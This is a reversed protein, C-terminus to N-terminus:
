LVGKKNFLQNISLQTAINKANLYSIDSIGTEFADLFVDEKNKHLKINLTMVCLYKSQQRTFDCKSNNIAIYCDSNKNKSNSFGLQMLKAVVLNAVSHNDQSEFCTSNIFAETDNLRRYMPDNSLLDSASMMVYKTSLLGSIKIRDPNLSYDISNQLSIPASQNLFILQRAITKIESNISDVVDNLLISSQVYYTSNQFSQRKTQINDLLQINSSISYEANSDKFTSVGTTTTSEIAVKATSSIKLLIDSHAQLKADELNSSSGVGSIVNPDNNILLFWKPPPPIQATYTSRCGSILLVMVAISVTINLKVEM